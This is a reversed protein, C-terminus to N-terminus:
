DPYITVPLDLFRTSGSVLSNYIDGESTAYNLQMEALEAALKRAHEDSLRIATVPRNREYGDNIARRLRDSIREGKIPFDAPLRDVGHNGDFDITVYLGHDKLAHGIQNLARSLVAQTRSDEVNLMELLKM